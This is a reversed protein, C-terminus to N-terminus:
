DAWEPDGTFAITLWRDPSDDGIADGVENRIADWYAIDQAPTEQPVIFYIEIQRARGVRAIYTRFSEFGYKKVIADAVDDVHRKLDYPTILLTDSLAQKVAPIPLPIIVLCVVTLVVPDIFPSIWEWTTGQVAYGICFAILLAATIGASMIWARIDLRIFDSGITRNARSAIVAIMTCTIITIVTYVIAFGFELDRGGDLLSGVANLLAYVAVGILLLGNLGLVMPELHWFGMTFREQLRRSLPASTSYSTILNVVLLALLGMSADVLSYVGDFMIAFSGSLLGFIIGFLAIFLTAGIALKLVGREDDLSFFRVMSTM